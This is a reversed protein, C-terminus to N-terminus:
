TKRVRLKRNKKRGGTPTKKKKTKRKRPKKSHRIRIATEEVKKDHFAYHVVEKKKYHEAKVSKRKATRPRWIIERETETSPLEGNDQPREEEKEEDDSM